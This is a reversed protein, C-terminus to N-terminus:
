PLWVKMELFHHLCLYSSQLLTIGTGWSNGLTPVQNIMQELLLQTLHMHGIYNVGLHMEFGEKTRRCGCPEKLM